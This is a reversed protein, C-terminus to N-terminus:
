VSQYTSVSRDLSCVGMQRSPLCPSSSGRETQNAMILEEQKYRGWMVSYAIYQWPINKYEFNFYIVNNPSAIQFNNGPIFM